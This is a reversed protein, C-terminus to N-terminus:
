VDSNHTGPLSHVPCASVHFEPTSSATERTLDSEAHPRDHGSPRLIEGAGNAPGGPQHGNIATAIQDGQRAPVARDSVFQGAARKTGTGTRHGSYGQAGKMAATVRMLGARMFPSRPM